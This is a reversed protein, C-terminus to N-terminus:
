HAWPVAAKCSKPNQGEPHTKGDPTIICENVAGFGVRTSGIRAGSKDYSTFLPKEALASDSVAHHITTIYTGNVTPVTVRIGWGDIVVTAADGAVRGAMIIWDYNSSGPDPGVVLTEFTAAGALWQPHDVLAWAAGQSCDVGRDPAYFLAITHGESILGNYFRAGPIRKVQDHCGEALKEAQQHSLGPPRSLPVGTSPGDDSRGVVGVIIGAVALVAAAAALPALWHRRRTPGPDATVGARVRARLEAQRGPPFNREPPPMTIM